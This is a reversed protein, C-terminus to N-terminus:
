IGIHHDTSFTLIMRLVVIDMPYTGSSFITTLWLNWYFSHPHTDERTSANGLLLATRGTAIYVIWTALTGMWKHKAKQLAM